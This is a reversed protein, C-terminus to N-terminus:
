ASGPWQKVPPPAEWGIWLVWGGVWWFHGWRSFPPPPPPSSATCHLSLPQAHSKDHEQHAQGATSVLPEAPISRNRNRCQCFAASLDIAFKKKRFNNKGLQKQNVSGLFKEIKQAKKKPTAEKQPSPPENMKTSQHKQFLGPTGRPNCDMACIHLGLILLVLHNM